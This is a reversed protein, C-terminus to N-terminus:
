SKYRSPVLILSNAGNDPVDAVNLEVTWLPPNYLAPLLFMAKLEPSM